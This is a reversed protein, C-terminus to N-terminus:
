KNKFRKLQSQIKASEQQIQQVRNSSVKLQDDLMQEKQEAASLRNTAM